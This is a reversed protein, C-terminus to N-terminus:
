NQQYVLVGYEPISISSGSYASSTLYSDAFSEGYASSPHAFILNWANGNGTPFKPNYGTQSQKNYNIIVYINGGREFGLIKNNNDQLDVTIGNYQVAPYNRRVRALDRVAACTNAAGVRAPINTANWYFNNWSLPTGDTFWRADMPAGWYSDDYFGELFEDGYLIMPMGQGMLVTALGTVQQCQADYESNGWSRVYHLDAATREKGNAAEDHSELYNLGAWGGSTNGTVLGAMTPIDFSTVGDSFLAKLASSITVNWQYDFGAGTSSTIWSDNPLNEAILVLNGPIRSRLNRTMNYLFNGGASGSNGYYIYYTADFRFGDAHYILGFYVACDYLFKTVIPNSFNFAPGWPTTGSYWYTQPNSWDAAPDYAAIPDGSDGMHNFVLDFVVAMGRRHAENVFVKLTDANTAGAGGCYSSDPAYYMTYNYGWSQDGPFQNIPLPEIATIGNNTLYDFKNTASIFTGWGNYTYPGNTEFTRIHTEYLTYYQSGPRSWSGDNWQFAGPDVIYSVGPSTSNNMKAAPDSIWQIYPGGSSDSYKELCFQYSQGPQTNSVVMWWWCKDKTLKMPLMQWSNFDGGVYARRIHPFYFSFVTVGNGWYNAGMYWNSPHQGTMGDDAPNRYLNTETEYLYPFSEWWNNPSYVFINSYTGVTNTVMTLISNSNTVTVTTSNSKTLLIPTVIRGYLGGNLLIPEWNGSGDNVKIGFKKRININSIAFGWWGVTGDNFNTFRQVDGTGSNDLYWWHLVAGAWTTHSSGGDVYVNFVSSIPNYLTVTQLVNTSLWAINTVTVTNTVTLTDSVPVSNTVIRLNTLTGSVNTLVVVNTAQRAATQEIEALPTCYAAALVAVAIFLYKM